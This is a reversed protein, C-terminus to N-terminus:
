LLLLHFSIGAHGCWVKLIILHGCARAVSEFCIFAQRKPLDVGERFTKSPCGPTKLSLGKSQCKYYGNRRKIPQFRVSLNKIPKGGPYLQRERGIAIM